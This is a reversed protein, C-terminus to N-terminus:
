EEHKVTRYSSDPDCEPRLYRELDAFVEDVMIHIAEVRDFDPPTTQALYADHMETISAKLDRLKGYVSELERYESEGLEELMKEDMKEMIGDEKWSKIRGSIKAAQVYASKAREPAIWHFSVAIIRRLL